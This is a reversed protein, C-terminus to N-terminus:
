DYPQPDVTAVTDVFNCFEMFANIFILSSYYFIIM